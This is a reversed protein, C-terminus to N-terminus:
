KLLLDKVPVVPKRRGRQKPESWVQISLGDEDDQALTWTKGQPVLESSRLQGDLLSHLKAQAANLDYRANRFEGLKDVYECYSDGIAPAKRLNEDTIRFKSLLNTPSKMTFGKRFNFAYRGSM